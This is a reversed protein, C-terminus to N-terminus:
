SNPPRPSQEAGPQIENNVEVPVDKRLKLLGSTAVEDGPEVGSVQVLDGRRRGLQVLRREVSRKEGDVLVWVSDGYPNYSVSTQPVVIVEENSGIKIEVQAFMGPRLMKEPNALTAQAEFNRTAADIRPEIATITGEFERDGFAEVALTVPLGVRVDGLQQQPLKFNVLIPDLSQLTVIGTGPALHDGLDVKRIGLEGAFPARIVKQAIRARQADVQAKTSAATSTRRDVEADAVASSNKLNHARGLELDALEGAAVLAALEADDTTHDLTILVEGAAVSGGSEFEISDVIGSAETTVDTGNQAEITGVAALTVDWQDKFARATSITVAPVPMDDFYQNMMRNGFWKFGFVGGFVLLAATLMILMRLNM